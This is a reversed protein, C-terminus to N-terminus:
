LVMKKKGNLPQEPKNGWRSKAANRGIESWKQRNENFEQMTRFLRESYFWDGEIIFLKYDQIVKLVKEKPARFDFALEDVAAMPLRHDKQERLVEILMFYIAYGEGKLDKRLKLIKVDNRANSDHSFYFADKPQKSM